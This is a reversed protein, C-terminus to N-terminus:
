SNRSSSNGIQFSVQSGDRLQAVVFSGDPYAGGANSFRFHARGGNHTDGSFRGEELRNAESAPLSRYIGASVVNGTLAPPLLVVLRGDAESQPKWLFGGMAAGDQASSIGAGMAGSAAHLAQPAVNSPAQLSRSEIEKNGAVFSELAQRAKQIAEAIEMTAITNDGPGGRSDFLASSDSDLQAAQFSIGNISEATALDLKGEAVIEALGIKVADEIELGANLAGAFSQTFGEAAETSEGLLLFKVIAFQMEEENVVGSSNAQLSQLVSAEFQSLDEGLKIGAEGLLPQTEQNGMKMNITLLVKDVISDILAEVSEKPGVEGEETKEGRQPAISDCANPSKKCRMDARVQQSAESGFRPGTTAIQM